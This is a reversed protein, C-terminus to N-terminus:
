SLEDIHTTHHLIQFTEVKAYITSPKSIDVYDQTNCEPYRIQEVNTPSLKPIM